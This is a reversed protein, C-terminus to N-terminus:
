KEKGEIKEGIFEKEGERGAFGNKEERNLGTQKKEGDVSAWSGQKRETLLGLWGLRERKEQGFCVNMVMPQKPVMWSVLVRAGRSFPCAGAKSARSRGSQGRGVVQMEGLM